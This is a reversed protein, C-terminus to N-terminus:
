RTAAPRKPWTFRVTAGPTGPPPEDIWARGGNADVQKKV